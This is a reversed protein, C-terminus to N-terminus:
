MKMKEFWKTFLEIGKEIKIEPQYGLLRKAKTIDAFTILADGPQAPFRRIKAKKNLFYELIKILESLEVPNSNGLNIIEFKSGLDLSSIMGNIIDSYFTYDRKSSGDGYIPIPEDNIILRTFKHIALDPRQRPGYVTFFRLCVIPINHLLYYTYCYLEGTRKTVGYPSIPEDIKDDESFPLKKNNGYVSSSSGFIFQKVNYIRSLELLTLTGHCNVEEYLLPNKLSPRVGARAALHVVIEIKEDKFIKQCGEFDRIDIEYFKVNKHRLTKAINERKIERPYFDDFNDIAVLKIDQPALRELLHSGIFGAAGTILLTKFNFNM